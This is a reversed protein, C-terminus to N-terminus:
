SRARPKPPLAQQPAVFFVPETPDRNQELASRMRVSTGQAEAEEMGQQLERATKMDWPLVYARPEPQGEFMLWIYIAEPEQMQAAIVTAESPAIPKLALGVPKPRGLLDILGGYAVTALVASMAM